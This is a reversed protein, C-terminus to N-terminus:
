WPEPPLQVPRPRVGCLPCRRSAGGQAKLARERGRGGPWLRALRWEIGAALGVQLLRAGLGLEHQALRGALDTTTGLYHRAHQYPRTFHLLYVVGGRRCGRCLPFAEYVQGALLRLAADCGLASLRPDCCLCIQRGGARVVTPPVALVAGSM